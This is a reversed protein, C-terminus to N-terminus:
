PRCPTLSGAPVRTWLQTMGLLPILVYGRLHLTDNGDVELEGRWSQGDVPNFITGRIWPGDGAPVFGMLIELGCLLRGNIAPPSNPPGLVAGSREPPPHTVDIWAIRGCLGSGCRLIEIAGSRDATLWMGEASYPKPKPKSDADAIVSPYLGLSAGFGLILVLILVLYVFRRRGATPPMATM